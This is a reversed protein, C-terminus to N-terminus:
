IIIEKAKVKKHTEEPEHEVVFVSNEQAVDVSDDWAIIPIQPEDNFNGIEYFEDRMKAAQRKFIDTPHKRYIFARIVSAPDSKMRHLLLEEDIVVENWKEVNPGESDGSKLRIRMNMMNRLNHNVQPSWGQQGHYNIAAGPILCQNWGALTEPIRVSGGFSSCIDSTVEPDSATCIKGTSPCINQYAGNSANCSNGVAGLGCGRNVRHGTEGDFFYSCRALEQEVMDTDIVFGTNRSMPLLMTGTGNKIMIKHNVLSASLKCDATDTSCSQEGVPNHFSSCFINKYFSDGPAPMSITLGLPSKPDNEDFGNYLKNM